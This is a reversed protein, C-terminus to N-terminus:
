NTSPMGPLFSSSGGRQARMASGEFYTFITLVFLVGTAVFILPTLGLGRKAVVGLSFYISFGVSAYTVILALTGGSQPAKEPIKVDRMKVRFGEGTVKRQILYRGAGVRIFALGILFGISAPGGGRILTLATIVVGILAYVVSFARISRDYPGGKKM